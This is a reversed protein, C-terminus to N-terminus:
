GYFETGSRWGVLLTIKKALYYETKNGAFPYVAYRVVQGYIDTVMRLVGYWQALRLYFFASM